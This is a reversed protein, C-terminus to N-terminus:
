HEDILIRLLELIGSSHHVDLIYLSIKEPLREWNQPNKKLFRRVIDKLTAAM